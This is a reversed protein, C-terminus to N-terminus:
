HQGFLRSFLSMKEPKRYAFIPSGGFRKVETRAGFRGWSFGMGIPAGRLDIFEFSTGLGAAFTKLDSDPSALATAHSIVSPNRRWVDFLRDEHVDDVLSTHPPTYMKFLETVFQRVTAAQLLMVPADHCLFYIPGWGPSEPPIDVVWCNGCGDHAIAVGHPVLFDLGFGDGLSRRTFDLQDLTGEIGSCFRLLDLVDDPPAVRLSRSFDDLEDATLGPLLRPRIPKGDEDSLHQKLASQIVERTTLM